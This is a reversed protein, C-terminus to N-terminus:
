ESETVHQLRKFPPKPAPEDVKRKKKKEKKEKKTPANPTSPKTPTPRPPSAETSITDDTTIVVPVAPVRAAQDNNTKIPPRPLNVPVLTITFADTPDQKTPTTSALVVAPTSAGSSSTLPRTSPNQFTLSTGGSIVEVSPQAPKPIVAPVPQPSSPESNYGVLNASPDRPPSSSEVPSLIPSTLAEEASPPLKLPAMPSSLKAPPPPSVKPSSVPLTPTATTEKSSTKATTPVRGGNLFAVSAVNRTPVTRPLRPRPETPASGGSNIDEIVAPLTSLHEVITKAPPEDDIPSPSRRFEPPRPDYDGRNLSTAIHHRVTREIVSVDPKGKSKSSPGVYTLQTKDAGEGRVFRREDWAKRMIAHQEQHRAEVSPSRYRDPPPSRHWQPEPTGGRTLPLPPQQSPRGRSPTRSRRRESRGRSPRRDRSSHRPRRSRSRYHPPSQKRFPSPRRRGRFPSPARRYDQDRDRYSSRRGYPRPSRDRFLSPSRRQESRDPSRGRTQNAPDDDKPQDKKSRKGGRPSSERGSSPKPLSPDTPGRPDASPGRGGGSDSPSPGPSPGPSPAPTEEGEIRLPQRLVETLTKSVEYAYGSDFRATTSVLHCLSDVVPLDAAPTPESSPAESNDVVRLLSGQLGRISCTEPDPSGPPLQALLAYVARNLGKSLMEGAAQANELHDAFPPTSPTLTGPSPQKRKKSSLGTGGKSPPTTDVFKPPLAVKVKGRTSKGRTGLPLDEDELIQTDEDEAAETRKGEKTDTRKGKLYWSREPAAFAHPQKRMTSVVYQFAELPLLAETKDQHRELIPDPPLSINGPRRNTAWYLPKRQNRNIVAGPPLPLNRIIAVAEDYQSFRTRTITPKNVTFQRFQYGWAAFPNPNKHSVGVLQIPHTNSQSELMYYDISDAKSAIVLESQWAKDIYHAM